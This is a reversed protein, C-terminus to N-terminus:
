TSAEDLSSLHATMAQLVADSRAPDTIVRSVALAGIMASVAVMARDDAKDGLQRATREIFTEVYDEMVARSSLDARGVDSVLAAIACGERRSDRHSASLYSRVRDTFSVTKGATEARRVRARTDDLARKLAQTLLDSRSEFHGYFGGHTLGVSKMLPGVSLSELGNEKVAEAAHALIRERSQAKELQSHGM